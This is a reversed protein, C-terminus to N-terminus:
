MTVTLNKKKQREGSANNLKKGVKWLQQGESQATVLKHIVANSKTQLIFDFNLVTICERNKVIYELFKMAKKSGLFDILESELNKSRLTEIIIKKFAQRSITPSYKEYFENLKEEYEAKNFKATMTFPQSEENGYKLSVNNVSQDTNKLPM